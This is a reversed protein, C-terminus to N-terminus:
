KGPARKPRVSFAEFAVDLASGTNHGATVGIQLKEPWDLTMPALSQWNAGDDSVSATITRGSRELRLFCQDPAGPLPHEGTNGMRKPVGADRLEFSVYSINGMGAVMEGKELRIYSRDDKALLLGAGHFPRRNAVQAVANQPFHGLVKVQAEFDGEVQRFVRPANMQNREIVLAHPTGPVYMRLRAADASIRCDGDPDVVQGWAAAGMPAPAVGPSERMCGTFALSACVITLLSPIKRTQPTMMTPTHARIRLYRACRISLEPSQNGRRGRKPGRDM